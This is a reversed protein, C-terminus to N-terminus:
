SAYHFPPDFSEHTQFCNHCHKANRFSGESLEANVDSVQYNLYHNNTRKQSKQIWGPVITKPGVPSIKM